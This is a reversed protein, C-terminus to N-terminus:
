APNGPEAARARALRAAYANELWHHLVLEQARQSSRLVRNAHMHLLSELLEDVSVGLEGAAELALLAEVHPRQAASRAALLAAGQALREGASAPDALLAEVAAREDRWRAMVRKRAPSDLRFEAAFARAQAGALAHRRELPLGFDAMLRDMGLLAFRWRADLGAEGTALAVFAMAALSDHCFLAEAHAIARPGGYRATERVYPDLQVRHVAGNGVFPAVGEQLAPLAEALLRRPEGHLRVRLHWDPDAYRVFFGGDAVGDALLREFTERVGDALVRDATAPGCYWKVTLWESGPMFTGERSRREADAAAARPARAPSPARAARVVPVVLEAVHRGEPASVADPPAGPFLEELTFPAGPVLESLFADVSLPQDLDVPLVNDAYSLGVFRPLAREARWRQVEAFAAHGSRARLRRSEDAGANWRQRALVLRGMRVRPLRPQHELPGWNWAVGLSTGHTQLAVLFRYVGLSREGTYHASTLRPRVERGLRRSRLVVRGGELRVTLDDLTLVRERPVGPEGLYAFEHERLVARALVNGVRGEPLHVIEFYTVGPERAAEAALHARVHDALAPDAQTFRGLLRAGSPGAAVEFLARPADPRGPDDALPVALLHMAAPLPPAGAGRFRELEAPEIVIEEKGAAVARALTWQLWELRTGWAPRQETTGPPLALGALLPSPDAGPGQAAGFGIGLEEDLVEALAVERDGYRREFEDRFATLADVHGHTFLGALRDAADVMEAVLSEELVLGAAPRHLDVQFLRAPDVPALEALAAALATYREIPAGAGGADLAALAARAAALGTRAAHEPACAALRDLLDDLADAGTVVPGLSAVLLQADVLQHAFALADDHSVDGGFEAVLAEAVQALTAGERAAAFAARVAENAEVQVLYYARQGGEHRGEAYRLSGAAEYASSNPRHVARARVAPDAELAAVVGALYDMDLRTHRTAAERAPLALARERGLEGTSHSAFTGFPTARAAMRSVYKTLAAEVGPEAEPNALWADLRSELAPSALWVAERM